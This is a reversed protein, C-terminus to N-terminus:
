QFIGKRQEEHSLAQLITVELTSILKVTLKAVHHFPEEVRSFKPPIEKECDKQLEKIHLPHLILHKCM